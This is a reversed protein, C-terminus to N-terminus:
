RSRRARRLVRRWIVLPEEEDKDEEKDEQLQPPEEEQLARGGLTGRVLEANRRQQCRSCNCTQQAVEAANPPAVGAAGAGGVGGAAVGEGGPGPQAGGATRQRTPPDDRREEELFADRFTRRRGGNKQVVASLPRQLGLRELERRTPRGPETSFLYHQVIKIEVRNGVFYPDAVERM